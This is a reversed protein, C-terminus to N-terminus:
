PDRLLIQFRLKSLSVVDGHHLTDHVNAQLRSGHVYTGNSSWLDRIRVGAVGRRIVAHVRSVGLDLAGFPTLDFDPTVQEDNSCRGLTFEHGFPLPITAGTDLIRLAIWCDEPADPFVSTTGDELLLPRLTAAATEQAVASQSSRRADLLEVCQECFVAGAM